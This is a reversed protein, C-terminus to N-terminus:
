IVLKYTVSFKQKKNIAWFKAERWVKDLRRVTSVKKQFNIWWKVLLIQRNKQMQDNKLNERINKLISSKQM